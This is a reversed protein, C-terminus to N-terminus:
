PNPPLSERGHMVGLSQAGVIIVRKARVLRLLQSGVKLTLGLALFSASESESKTM